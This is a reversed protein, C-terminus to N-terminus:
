YSLAPSFLVLCSQAPSLLVFCSLALSLLVFCSQAPSFLVPCFLVPCFLVSCSQLIICYCCSRRFRLFLVVVVCCFYFTSPKAQAHAAKFLELDKYLYESNMYMGSLEQSYLIRLKPEYGPKQFCLDLFKVEERLIPFM